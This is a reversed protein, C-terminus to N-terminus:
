DDDYLEDRTGRPINLAPQNRLRDMFEEWSRKQEEESKRQKSTVGELRAVVKGRVTIEAPQGRRVRALLKSFNRNAETATITKMAIGITTIDSSLM